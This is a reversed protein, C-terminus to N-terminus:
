APSELFLGLWKAADAAWQSAPIDSSLRLGYGHGGSEYVKSTVDAGAGRAIKAYEETCFHSDDCSQALFLPPMLPNPAVERPPQGTARDILWAPYIPLAFDPRSDYRDIEDVPRYPRESGGAALRTALHGGASFGMVGVRCIDVGWQAASCRMWSIARRGDQYAGERNNPTRYHLVAAVFGLGQLWNAVESGELDAALISYGGGPCVIVAPKKAGPTAGYVFLMPSTVDMVRTVNGSTDGIHGPDASTEGPAFHPWIRISQIPQLQDM